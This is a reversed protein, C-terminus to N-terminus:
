TQTINERCFSVSARRELFSMRKSIRPWPSQRAESQELLVEGPGGKVPVLAMYKENM